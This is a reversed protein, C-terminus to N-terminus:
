VADGEHCFLLYLLAGLYFELFKSTKPTGKNSKLRKSTKKFTDRGQEGLAHFPNHKQTQLGKKERERKFRNM